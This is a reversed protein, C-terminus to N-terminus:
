KLFKGVLGYPLSKRHCELSAENNRRGERVVRFAADLVARVVEDKSDWGEAVNFLDFEFLADVGAEVMEPTVEIEM